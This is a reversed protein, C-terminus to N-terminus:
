TQKVVRRKDRQREPQYTPMSATSIAREQKAEPYGTFGESSTKTKENIARPAAGGVVNAFKGLLM